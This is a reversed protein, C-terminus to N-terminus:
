RLIGRLPGVLFISGAVVVRLGPRCASRLAAVPDAIADITPVGASLSRAAAALEEAPRARPTAATTCILRDFLPLLPSLIGAVDKDKMAGFVLTRGAPGHDGVESLYSALARAGAPNHAADFLVDAGQWTRRELRAPWAAHALAFVIAEQSVEFGASALEEVLCMAVAANAAQHRGALALPIERIDQVPSRLSVITRGGEFRSVVQIRELARV